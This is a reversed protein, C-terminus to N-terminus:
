IMAYRDTLKERICKDANMMFDVYEEEPVPKSFYFGQLFDCGMDHLMQVQELTEVGEAVIRLGLNKIMAVTHQLITLAKENDMASWVVSKDVKVLEFPFEILYDTNSFGTGYDDVAFTCGSDILCSMNNLLVRNNSNSTTETVEFDIMHYPIEYSDMISVLRNHLNEQMCQVMSLNVEIYKIGLEMIGPKKLFECVKHFVIDGIELILGSKEALPIFEDPPIYGLKEDKLRVLAEAVNFARDEISYIPQYFVEFDRNRVAAKLIHTIIVSRQYKEILERTAPIVDYTNEDKAQQLASNMANFLEERTTAVEPVDISCMRASLSVKVGNVEYASILRWKIWDAHKSLDERNKDFIYAFRTGELYYMDGKLGKAFDKVVIQLLEDSVDVGMFQDVFHFGDMEYTLVSFARKKASLAKVKELFARTNFVDLDRDVYDDPNQLTHYFMFLFLAGAFNVILVENWIYQILVAIIAGGAVLSSITLHTKNIKNEARLILFLCGLLMLFAMVYLTVHLPGHVYQGEEFYFLLKTWPTFVCLLLLYVLTSVIAIKSFKSIRGVKRDTIVRLYNFYSIYISNFAIFYISNIVYNLWLPVTDVHVLTYGSIADTVSSILILIGTTLFIRNAKNPVHKKSFYMIGVIICICIAALDYHIIYEM